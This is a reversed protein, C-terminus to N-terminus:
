HYKSAYRHVEDILRAVTDVPTQPLIGHGVNFIHKGTYGVQDIIEQTHHQVVNWDACLVAPDLNGQLVVDNGLIQRAQPLTIRWDIGIVDSNTQAIDALLGATGTGFHIIPVQAKQAIQIAQQTYPLVYHRYDFPSLEGVWSDFLQLANAGAEAQALLLEGSVRALLQMLTHWAHPQNYMFQKLTLRSTGGMGEIAYSALTFPAGSFGILPINRSALEPTVLRIAQLTGAMQERPDRWQLNTVDAATRIPNHILPGEGKIYDLSFGLSMLPPLIDAFIIAADLDFQQIPQLTVQCSLEASNIIDLISYRQRLERYEAMYRGAQRMFWVPTTDVTEGRCVRLFRSNQISM